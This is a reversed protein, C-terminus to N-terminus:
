LKGKPPTLDQIEKELKQRILAAIEKGEDDDLDERAGRGFMRWSKLMGVDIKGDGTRAKRDDPYRPIFHFHVHGVVQAARIGNNQVVNWDEFELAKSLARSLLPMWFGMAHSPSTGEHPFSRRWLSPSRASPSTPKPPIDSLKEAHQRPILLIHGQSIPLIDLFALVLPTSLILHCQPSVRESDPDRPVPSHDDPPYALAIKCFPCEQPYHEEM